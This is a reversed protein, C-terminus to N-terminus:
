AGHPKVSLGVNKAAAYNCCAAVTRYYNDYHKPDGIGGLMLGPSGAAATSDIM